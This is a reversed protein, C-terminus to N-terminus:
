KGNSVGLRRGDSLVYPPDYSLRLDGNVDRIVGIGGVVQGVQEPKPRPNPSQALAPSSMLLFAAIPIACLKMDKKRTQPKENYININITIKPALPPPGAGIANPVASSIVSTILTKLTETEM